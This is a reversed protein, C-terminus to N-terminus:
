YDVSDYGEARLAGMMPGVWAEPPGSFFPAQFGHTVFAVTHKVFHQVNNWEGTAENFTDSETIEGFPNAVVYYFHRGPHLPIGGDVPLRVSHPGTSLLSVDDAPTTTTGVYESSTRAQGYTDWQSAYVNFRIPQGV